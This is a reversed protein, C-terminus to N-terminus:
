AEAMWRDFGKLAGDMVIWVISHIYNQEMLYLFLM